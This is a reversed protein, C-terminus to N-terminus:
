SVLYLQQIECPSFKIWLHVFVLFVPCSLLPLLSTQTLPSLAWYHNFLKCIQLKSTIMKFWISPKYIIYNLSEYDMWLCLFPWKSMEIFSLQKFFFLKYKFSLLHLLKFESRLTELTCTPCKVGISLLDVGSDQLDNNNLELRRLSSPQSSLVSSLVTCSRESFNCHNLRFFLCVNLYISTNFNSSPASKKWSDKALAARESYDIKWSITLSALSMELFMPASKCVHEINAVEGSIHLNLMCWSM